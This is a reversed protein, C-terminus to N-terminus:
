RPRLPRGRFRIGLWLHPHLLALVTVIELRGIWMAATLAIKAGDSFSAYSGMPGAVGFAPGINGLCALAAVFATEMEVGLLAVVLGFFLYGVFYLIVLQVVSRMIRGSMVQGKYKYPLIAQPHLIRTIGQGVYKAFLLIRVAKPGGAASGACGGVLMVAILLAKSADTWLEFDESAFGTSSILSAAQFFAARLNAEGFGGLSWAIAVAGLVAVALYFRFEGDRPLATPRRTLTTYLLAYSTGSILMFPVLIWEITPNAYGAISLGNPSFGGAALTTFAHCIADFPTMGALSLLTALLLTLLSYLVWLRVSARRVQPRVGESSADSAEAFFLQRGAIGLRPLIVVFLAIVGLGGFWQTMSRWLFFARDYRSFDTLITAGTTTFGSLSEFMADVLSLGEFYYPIAGVAGMALWTLAVVALAESRHFALDSANRFALHALSGLALSVTAAVAFGWVGVSGDILALVFPPVFAAAFLLLVEGVVALVLPVRM